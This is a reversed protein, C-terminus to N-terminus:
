GALNEEEFCQEFDSRLAVTGRTHMQVHMWRINLVTAALEAHLGAGRLRWCLHGRIYDKSPVAPEYWNRHKCDFVSQCMISDDTNDSLKAANMGPVQELHCDLLRRHYAETESELEAWHRCYDLHLDHLLMGSEEQGEASSRVEMQALSMTCLELSVQRASHSSVNWMRALVFVPAFQQYRLM